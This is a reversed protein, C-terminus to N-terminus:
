EGIIPIGTEKLRSHILDSSAKDAETVPSGDAKDEYSFDTSYYDMLVFSADIGAQIAHKYQISLEQM